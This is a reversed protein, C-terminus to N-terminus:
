LGKAVRIVKNCSYVIAIIAIDKASEITFQMHQSFVIKLNYSYSYVIAIIAIDKASEITFQM